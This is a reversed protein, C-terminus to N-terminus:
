WVDLCVIERNDRMYLFGGALSPAQRTPGCIKKRGIEQYGKPSARAVILEGKVTSIFLTGDGAILNGKGFRPQQWVKRGSSMEVCNLHTIPGAGGVNDLGYLYGDLLISTQWENRMVSRPGFSTWVERVRYVEGDKELGLLACGHNEGCSVFVKGDFELPVAINCDFDTEYPYRWLLRGSEPALGLVAKGSFVVVQERGGIKLLAPSSYGATDKGTKWAFKGSTRDYAVVTGDPVGATVMVLKGVVLPSCATGYTMPKGGLERYVDHQWVITGNGLKLSLLIGEGSFAFVQKGDITPTARPGDGMDNRYAPSVVADWVPAGSKADLAVVLQKGEREVMTVLRGDKLALGSMGTGGKVRWLERPGGSPWSDLRGAERAIGNRDSGLFQPWDKDAARGHSGLASLLCAVVTVVLRRQKM